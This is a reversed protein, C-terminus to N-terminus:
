QPTSTKVVGALAEGLGLSAVGTSRTYEDFYWEGGQQVLGDPAPDQAVPVNKLALAMYDLWVPVALASGSEHDGLKRPQDYGMWVVAVLQKQYGAFWADYVDNTTGSKGMVDSRALRKQVGPASGGPRTVSTLMDSILFANRAEIVRNSDDLAPPRTETLVRGHADCVKAILLPRISHGGNAFVSYAGAMQMPTVAGSGLAMSLYAPNKDADFGFRTLWTQAQEVGVAQLVRIAVMNRSRALASRLDFSEEFKADYNKPEWAPGGDGAEVRVPGDSIRTSPTLGKELAASYIFPKITSGPQRWAQTAHNFQNRASDFGGVMARLAGTAPDMAVLAGQVEPVQSVSWDGGAQLQRLRIVSGAQLRLRAPAKPSLAAAVAALGAGRIQVTEGSQLVASLQGPGVQTVVAAKLLGYDPHQELAEAVEAEIEAAEKPLEVTAEPGRYAQKAEYNLLGRQVAEYAAKQDASSVTLTVNLGRGYAEEGYQEYVLRRAAEAVYQAYRPSNTGTRVKYGQERAQAWQAQTIKGTDLMRKLVHQQRQLARQPNAVPNRMNPLQQLGALLAAEALTIDKVPKGLYIESAAAFGYAHEGLYIQNMYIELIQEKSLENEIKLTLLAEYVKRTYSKELPLYFNRALQMTITSAGERKSQGLNSVFARLVGKFDVGNHEYFRADEVALVADQLVQPLHPLPTFVRREAGFEGLLVGDAAYIRLPLKPRYDALNSIDPLQPAALSFALAALSVSALLLGISLWLLWMLKRPWSARGWRTLAIEQALGGNTPKLM